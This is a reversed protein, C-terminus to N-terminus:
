EPCRGDLAEYIMIRASQWRRKVTRVDIALVSAAEQQSLGEYWLLNFVGREKEPLREVQEHFATWQDLTRPEVAGDVAQAVIGHEGADDTDHHAAEGEPGFHHRALDILSRRVQTSALSFFQQVSEPRVEALSRYLRLMANQLVDDTQEWRRLKPYGKLMKRTLRRLRECSHRILADRAANDGLQILDLCRQLQTTSDDPMATGGNPTKTECGWM